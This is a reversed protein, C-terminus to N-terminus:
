KPRFYVETCTESFVIEFKELQGWAAGNKFHNIYKGLENREVHLWEGEGTYCYVDNEGLFTYNFNEGTIGDPLEEFGEPAGGNDILEKLSDLETKTEDDVADMVNSGISCEGNDCGTTEQQAVSSSSSVDTESSSPDESSSSKETESSEPEESNSSKAESSSSKVSSSSDKSDSSSAKESSSSGKSDNSSAKESSSSEKSDSSTAKGSSSSKADSTSSKVSSSSGKNESSSSIKSASSTKKVEGTEDSIRNGIADVEGNEVMAAYEDEDYVEGDPTFVQVSSDSSCAVFAIATSALAILWFKKLLTRM